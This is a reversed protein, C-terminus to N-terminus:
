PNGAATEWLLEEVGDREILRYRGGPCAVARDPLLRLVTVLAQRLEDHERQVEALRTASAAFRRAATEPDASQVPAPLKSGLTLLHLVPTPYRDPAFDFACNCAVRRTVHGIKKRISPCSVPNGKLRDKMLKEPAVDVCKGFLYNVAQPGGEVHGLAHILVLQEEHSLKRHEDVTRKLEALVPCHELVHNIRPDAQFDADAWRPPPQPPPPGAPLKIGGPQGADESGSDAATPAPAPAPPRVAGAASLQKLREIADYLPQRPLRQIGRLAALPRALPNGADDLLMARHGTRRHIGLPLKILNGLGKGARGAQKPFFELHLGPPVHATQWALLMKGLLHLVDASEPQQLFVWYHRGKYGSNEFLPPLGLTRLVDLLRKGEARLVDRLTRAHAPDKRAQELAHKDIDLDV